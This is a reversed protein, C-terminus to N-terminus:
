LSARGQWQPPATPRLPAPAPLRLTNPAASQGDPSIGASEFITRVLDSRPNGVRTPHRDGNRIQWLPATTVTCSTRNWGTVESIDGIRRAGDVRTLWVVLDIAQDIQDAIFEQTYHGERAAYSALKQMVGRGPGSHLSVLNGALGSSMADLMAITGEGRVEGVVIKNTNSRKADRIHDGMSVKGVGEANEDKVLREVTFKHLGHAALRLEPTDEITDIREDEPTERLLGQIMTTKGASMTAGVVINGRVTGNVAERLLALVDDHALDLKDLHVDAGKNSRLTLFPPDVVFAEGHARWRSILQIDLRPHLKSFPVRRDGGEGYNAIHHLFAILEDDDAVPSPHDTEKVGGAREIVLQHAGMITYEEVTEDLLIDEIWAFGAEAGIAATVASRGTARVGREMVRRVTRGISRVTATKMEATTVWAQSAQAADAVAKADHLYNTVVLVWVPTEPPVGLNIRRNQPPEATVLLVGSAINAALSVDSAATEPSCEMVVPVGPEAATQWDGAPVFEIREAGSQRRVEDWIQELAAKRISDGLKGDHWTLLM